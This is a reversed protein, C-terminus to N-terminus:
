EGENIEKMIEEGLSVIDTNILEIVENLVKKRFHSTNPLGDPNKEDYVDGSAIYEENKTIIFTRLKDEATALTVTFGKHEHVYTVVGNELTEKKM